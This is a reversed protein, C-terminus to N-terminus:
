KEAQRAWTVERTAAAWTETQQQGLSKEPQRRRPHNCQGLRWSRQNRCRSSISAGQPKNLGMNHAGRNRFKRQPMKEQQECSHLCGESDKDEMVAIFVTDRIKQWQVTVLFLSCLRSHATINKLMLIEWNALSFPRVTCSLAPECSNGPFPQTLIQIGNCTITTLKEVMHRLMNNLTCSVKLMARALLLKHLLINCYFWTAM